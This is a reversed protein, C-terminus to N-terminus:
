QPSSESQKNSSRAESSGRESREPPTPSSSPFRLWLSIHSPQMTEDVVEALDECLKELDTQDRLKTGFAELIMAADYKRRYFRRDIFSQIRRRLPNFLAAIALTSVVIALTNGQGTLLSFLSQLATVSGFYVLALMATLSGYVLTRNIILDIEYLRYRLIAIGMAIPTGLLGVAVVLYGVWQGWQEGILPSFYTRLITGGSGIVGAYILWKIQLREVGRARRLRVVVLSVTAVLAFTLVLAQVPRNLNPLEEVGLPNPLNILTYLVADPSIAALTAAILTVAASLWAFWKWRRSPLRGTPFLLLLFVILGIMLIWPWLSLWLAAEGGALPPGPQALLAYVAYEGSFHEVAGLLGIACCLWGIPHHPLRPVLIAGIVSYGVAIATLELWYFYTPTNLNLILGILLFSLAILALSLACM